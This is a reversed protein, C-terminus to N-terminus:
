ELLLSAVRGSFIRGGIGFITKKVSINAGAVTSSLGAARMAQPARFSHSMEPPVAALIPLNQFKTDAPPTFRHDVPPEGRKGRLGTRGLLQKM